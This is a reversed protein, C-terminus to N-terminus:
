DERWSRWLAAYAGNAALLETHSGLETIHGAEIVCVRDADHATMLRHAIAVVTRGELVAGLSRELHRAARPDLLSTAEDLVVTHPDALVVRALAVQQAQPETLPHGGSGIVTDVGEPLATVWELADVAALAALLETETAEPTPLRLNEALTGVFIHHEQSVLAVEGRLVALNLDVLPVRGCEVAGQTPADIGALLRGLTSKGAGSPGVIALREGPILTLSVGHLVDHNTRYGYRVDRAEIVESAPLAGTAQRDSPVEAVGLIRSASTSAYQIEDLWGIVEAIPDLLQQLYLVVTTLAGISVLGQWSLWGGWLLAVAIPLFLGIDLWPIWRLRLGMTYREASRGEDIAALFRAERAAQLGLADITSAGEITESAVGNVAAYSAHEWLYGEGARTLYWRTPWWHVLPALVIVAAVLPATLVAAVGAVVVSVVAVTLAPIGSRIVYEVAAVDHTTRALLDGTGAREVTSLPLALSRNMFDTRLRDFIRESLILAARRGWWTLATQLLLGVGLVAVFRNVTGLDARGSSVEAVIQGIAWPGALGTLAALVHWVAVLTFETRHHRWLHRTEAIVTARSAIPLTRQHQDTRSPPGIM